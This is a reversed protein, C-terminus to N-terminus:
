RIFLFIVNHRAETKSYILSPTLIHEHGLTYNINNGCKSMNHSRSTYIWMLM